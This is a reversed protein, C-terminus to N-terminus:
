KMVVVIAPTWVLFNQQCLTLQSRSFMQDFWTSHRLAVFLVTSSLFYVISPMLLM